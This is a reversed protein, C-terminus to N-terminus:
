KEKNGSEYTFGFLPAFLVIWWTEFHVALITLCVVPIANMAFLAFWKM